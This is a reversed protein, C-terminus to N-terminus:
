PSTTEGLSSRSTKCTSMLALTIMTGTAILLTVAFPLANDLSHRDLPCLPRALAGDIHVLTPMCSLNLAYLFHSLRYYDVYPHAFVVSQTFLRALEQKAEDNGVIERIASPVFYELADDEENALSGLSGSSPQGACGLAMYAM